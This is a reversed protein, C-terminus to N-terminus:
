PRFLLEGAVPLKGEQELFTTDNEAREASLRQNLAASGVKSAYGQVLILYGTTSRGTLFNRHRSAM